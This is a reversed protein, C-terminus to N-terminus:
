ARGPPWGATEGASVSVRPDQEGLDPRQGKAV